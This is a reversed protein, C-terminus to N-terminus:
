KSLPSDRMTVSIRRDSFLDENRIGHSYDYRASGTLIQLTRRKLLVRKDEALVPYKQKELRFTMYCDGALSINAIPEKSLQRDDVHSKLYDGAARRYDIANAENPICGTVKMVNMESIRDIIKSICTPLPDDEPYVKRDRLSCHVGWRKGQNKGNFRSPNWSLYKDKQNDLPHQLKGDLMQIIEEEEEESIFEEFIYLGPLPESSYDDKDNGAAAATLSSKIINKWQQKAEEHCLHEQQPKNKGVLLSIPLSKMEDAKVGHKGECSSAHHEILHLPLSKDCLPCAQFRSNQSDDVVRNRKKQKPSFFAALKDQQRANRKM